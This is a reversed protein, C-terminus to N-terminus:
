ERFQFYMRLVIGVYVTGAVAVPEWCAYSIQYLETTHNRLYVPPCVFLRVYKDCFKAGWVPSSIVAAAAGHRTTFADSHESMAVNWGIAVRYM